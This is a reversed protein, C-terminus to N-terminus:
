HLLNNFIHLVRGLFMHIDGVQSFFMNTHLRQDGAEPIM